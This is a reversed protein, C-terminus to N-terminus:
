QGRWPESGPRAVPWPVQSSQAQDPTELPFVEWKSLYPPTEFAEIVVGNLREALCV